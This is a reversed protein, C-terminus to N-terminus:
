NNKYWSFSRSSDVYDPLKKNENVFDTIKNLKVSCNSFFGCNWIVVLSM